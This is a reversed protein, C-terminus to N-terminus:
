PSVGAVTSATRGGSTSATPSGSGLASQNACAPSAIAAAIRQFPAAFHASSM